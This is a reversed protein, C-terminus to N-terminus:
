KIQNRLGAEIEKIHTIQNKYYALLYLDSATFNDSEWFQKDELEAVKRQLRVRQDRLDMIKNVLQRNNYRIEREAKTLMIM